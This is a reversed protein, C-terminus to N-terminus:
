AEGAKKKLRSARIKQIRASELEDWKSELFMVATSEALNHNQITGHPIIAVGQDTSSGARNAIHKIARDLTIKGELINAYTLNKV